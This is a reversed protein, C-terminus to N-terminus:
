RLLLEAVQVDTRNEKEELLEIVKQVYGDELELLDSIAAADMGKDRKRRIIAIIGEAWGEEKGKALGEARGEEKIM